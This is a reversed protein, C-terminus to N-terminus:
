TTKARIMAEGIQDRLLSIVHRGLVDAIPLCVQRNFDTRAQYELNRWAQVASGVLRDRMVAGALLDHREVLDLFPEFAALECCRAM